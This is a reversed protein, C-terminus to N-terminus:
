QLNNSFGTPIHKAAQPLLDSQPPYFFIRWSFSNSEHGRKTQTPPVPGQSNSSLVDRSIKKCIPFLIYCFRM